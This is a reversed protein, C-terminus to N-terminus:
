LSGLQLLANATTVKDRNSEEFVAYIVSYEIGPFMQSLEGVYENSLSKGSAATSPLSPYM